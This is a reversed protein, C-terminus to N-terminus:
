PLSTVAGITRKCSFCIPDEQMRINMTAAEIAKNYDELYLALKETAREPSLVTFRNVRDSQIAEKMAEVGIRYWLAFKFLPLNECLFKEMSCTIIFKVNLGGGNIQQVSAAGGYCCPFTCSLKQYDYSGDPYYKNETKRLTLQDSNFGVFLNDKEFEQYVDVVNLGSEVQASITSLLEGDSDTDYVFIQGEPSVSETESVFGISLINLRAYKPLLFQIKVGAIQGPDVTDTLYDSTERSVLKLDIHFRAALKAQLDILLQAKASDQITDFFEEFDDQDDKTLSHLQNVTMGLLGTFYLGSKSTSISRDIGIYGTLCM